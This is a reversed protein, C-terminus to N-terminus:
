QENVKKGHIPPHFRLSTIEAVSIKRYGITTLLAHIGAANLLNMRVISGGKAGMDHDSYNIRYM